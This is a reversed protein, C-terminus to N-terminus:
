TRSGSISMIKRLECWVIDPTLKAMEKPEIKQVIDSEITATNSNNPMQAANLHLQQRGYAGILMPSTSGYLSIAPIDLAASLHGLGTDVAVVAQAHALVSALGHLNQRPLVQARCCNKAILEARNKEEENGWPLLIGFGADSVKESLMQWYVQPWYKSFRTTGHLFVVYPQRHTSSGFASKDLSYNGKSKPLKYKLAQSFLCRIREVAHMNKPVSIKHHYFFTALPERISQRDLGYCPAKVYHALWASKLLGQADIVCDYEHRQLLAKCHKWEKGLLSKLPTKRWRRLAVPIVEAVAPHWSPIEAFGEEVLWDFTIGPIAEAADSLAPLTHIVDGMSSTKVVLVRM